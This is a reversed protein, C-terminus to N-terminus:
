SPGRGRSGQRKEEDARQRQVNADFTAQQDAAIVSRLEAYEQDQLKLADERLQQLQAFDPTTDRAKADEFMHRAAISYSLFRNQYTKEIRGISDKQSHDLKVDKLVLKTAAMDEFRKSIEASPDESQRREGSGEGGHRGMGRGGPYGQAPARSSAITAFAIGLVLSALRRPAVNM